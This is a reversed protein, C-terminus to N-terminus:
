RKGKTFRSADAKERKLLSYQSFCKKKRKKRTINQALSYIIELVKLTLKKPFRLRLWIFALHFVISSLQAQLIINSMM